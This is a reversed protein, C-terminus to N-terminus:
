GLKDPVVIIQVAEIFAPNFFVQQDWGLAHVQPMALYQWDKPKRLVDGWNQAEEATIEQVTSEFEKGSTTHFVFKIRITDAM